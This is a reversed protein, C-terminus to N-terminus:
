YSVNYQDSRRGGGEKLRRIEALANIKKENMGVPMVQRKERETM